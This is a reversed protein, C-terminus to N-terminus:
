VCLKIFFVPQCLHEAHGGFVSSGDYQRFVCKLLSCLHAYTSQMGELCLRAMMSSLVFNLLSCLSAYTSQMGELCLRVM